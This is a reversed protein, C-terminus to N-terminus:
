QSEMHIHSIPQRGSLDPLNRIYELSMQMNMLEGNYFARKKKDLWKNILKGGGM